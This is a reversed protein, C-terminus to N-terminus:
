LALRLAGFAAKTVSESEQNRASALRRSADARRKSLIALIPLSRGSRKVSCISHKNMNDKDCRVGSQGSLPTEPFGFM